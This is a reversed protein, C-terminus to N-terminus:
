TGTDPLRSQHWNALKTGAFPLNTKGHYFYQVLKKKAV